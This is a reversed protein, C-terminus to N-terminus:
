RQEQYRQRRSKEDDDKNKIGKDQHQKHPTQEDDKNKIGKDGARRMMMKTRLVKTKISNIRPKNMM